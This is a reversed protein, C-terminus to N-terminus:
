NWPFRFERDVFSRAIIAASRQDGLTEFYTWACSIRRAVARSSDYGLCEAADVLRIPHNSAEALSLVESAEKETM